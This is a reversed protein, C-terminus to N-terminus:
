KFKEKLKEVKEKLTELAMEKSIAKELNTASESV